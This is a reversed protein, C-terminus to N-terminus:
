ENKNDKKIKKLKKLEQKEQRDLISLITKIEWKGKYIRNNKRNPMKWCTRCCVTMSWIDTKIDDLCICEAWKKPNDSLYISFTDSITFQVIIKKNPYLEDGFMKRCIDEDDKDIIKGQDSIERIV